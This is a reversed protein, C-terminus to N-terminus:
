KTVVLGALELISTSYFNDGQMLEEHTGQALITGQDVLYIRDAMSASQIRHTVLLVGMEKKLRQLLNLIQKETARDMAATAEDLLLLQPQHYLARAIGLLQQQGGSLNIGSEGVVTDLGAPMSLFPQDLGYSKLFEGVQGQDIDEYAALAINEAVSANFLQIEQPVVGLIKRWDRLNYQGIDRDNVEINGKAPELFCQLIQLLTSKGCGSEGMLAIM